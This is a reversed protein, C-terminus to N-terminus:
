VRVVEVDPRDVLLANLDDPDSTLVASGPVRLTEAAVLADAANRGGTRGLLAGALRGTEADTPRSGTSKLVRNVMADRPGGRLTEALVVVPVWLELERAIALRLLERVDQDGCSWGIVAGSDLILRSHSASSRAV